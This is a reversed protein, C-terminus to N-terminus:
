NSQEVHHHVKEQNYSKSLPSLAWLLVIGAIIIVTKSLALMKNESTKYAKLMYLPMFVLVLFAFGINAVVAAGPWHQVKFITGITLLIAAGYGFIISSTNTSVTNNNLALFAMLPLVILAIIASGLVLMIGAGPWHMLKFITGLLVLSASILGTISTVRKMKRLKLTLLYITSEQTKVFEKRGFKSISHQLSEAFDSGHEMKQEVMCCVHDILDFRLSDYDVGIDVLLDNIIDVQKDTLLDMAAMKM